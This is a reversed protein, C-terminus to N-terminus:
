KLSLWTVSAMFNDNSLILATVKKCIALGKRKQRGQTSVCKKKKKVTFTMWKCFVIKM